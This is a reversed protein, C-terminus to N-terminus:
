LSTFWLFLALPTCNLSIYDAFYISRWTSCVCQKPWVSKFCHLLIYEYLLVYILALPLKKLLMWTIHMLYADNSLCGWGEGICTCAPHNILGELHLEDFNWSMQSLVYAYIASHPSHLSVYLWGNHDTFYNCGIDCPTVPEGWVPGVPLALCPCKNWNLDFLSHM